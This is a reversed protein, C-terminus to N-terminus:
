CFQIGEVYVYMYLLLSCMFSFGIKEIKFASAIISMSQGTLILLQWLTAIAMSESDILAVFLCQLTGALRGSRPLRRGM